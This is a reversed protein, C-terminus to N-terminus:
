TQVRVLDGSIFITATAPGDGGIAPLTSTYGKARRVRLAAGPPIRAGSALYLTWAPPGGVFMFSGCIEIPNGAVEAIVDVPHTTRIEKLIWARDPPVQYLVESFGKRDFEINTFKSELVPPDTIPREVNHVSASEARGIFCGPIFALLIAPLPTKRNKIM